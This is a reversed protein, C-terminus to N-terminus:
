QYMAKVYIKGKYEGVKQNAGAKAWGNVTFVKKGDKELLFVGQEPQDGAIGPTFLTLETPLKENTAEGTGTTLTVNYVERPGAHDKYGAEESEKVYIKINEGPTGTIDVIGNVDGWKTEGPIMMGFDLPTTKIDLPQVVKAKIDVSAEKADLASGASFSTLSLAMIGTLLLIKKM